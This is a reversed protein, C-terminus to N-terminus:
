HGGGEVEILLAYFGTGSYPRVEIFYTGPSLSISIFSDTGPGGDDDCEIEHRHGDYLCLFSDLESGLREAAVDIAIEAYDSLSFRFFDRDDPHEIEFLGFFPLSIFCASGFDDNPEPCGEPRHEPGHEVLAIVAKITAMMAEGINGSSVECVIPGGQAIDTYGDGDCDIDYLALTGTGEAIRRLDELVSEPSSAIGIFKIGRATLAGIVEAFSPGPYYGDDGPQHFPADTWMLIIKIPSRFNAQQGPSIDEPDNFDGDGNTDQGVGKAAQYLAALQSEPTDDGGDAVLGSIASKVASADFTLDAMLRYAWDGPDGFSGIPYDRFSGLGFRTNPNLSIMQDIITPAQSQFNPLDDRFSGTLDVLIFVDVAPVQAVGVRPIVSGGVSAGLVALLLILRLNQFLRM